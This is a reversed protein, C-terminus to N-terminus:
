KCYQGLAIAVDDFNNIAKCSGINLMELEPCVAIMNVLSTVDIHSRYLNLRQLKPLKRLYAFGKMDVSKNCQLDLESFVLYLLCRHLLLLHHNM